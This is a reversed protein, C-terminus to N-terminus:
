ASEVARGLQNSLMMVLVVAHNVCCCSQSLQSSTIVKTSGDRSHLHIRLPRRCLRFAEVQRSRMVATPMHSVSVSTMPTGFGVGIGWCIRGLFIM